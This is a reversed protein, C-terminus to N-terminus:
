VLKVGLDSIVKLRENAAAEEAEGREREREIDGIKKRKRKIGGGSEWSERVRIRLFSNQKPSLFCLDM